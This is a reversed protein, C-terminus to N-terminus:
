PTIPATITNGDAQAEAAVTGAATTKEAAQETTIDGPIHIIVDRDASARISVAGAIRNASCGALLAIALLAIITRM